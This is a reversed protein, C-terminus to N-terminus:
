ESHSDLRSLLAALTMKDVPEYGLPMTFHDEEWESPAITEQSEMILRYAAPGDTLEIERPLAGVSWACPALGLDFSEPHDTKALPPPCTELLEVAHGLFHFLVHYTNSDFQGYWLREFSTGKEVLRWHGGNTEWVVQKPLYDWKEMAGPSTEPVAQASPVARYQVRGSWTPPSQTWAVSACLLLLGAILTRQTMLIRPNRRPM